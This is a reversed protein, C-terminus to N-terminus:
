RAKKVPKLNSIQAATRLTIPAEGALMKQIHRRGIFLAAALSRTTHGTAAMFAALDAPTM